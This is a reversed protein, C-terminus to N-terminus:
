RCLLLENFERSRFCWEINCGPDSIKQSLVDLIFVRVEPGAIPMFHRLVRLPEEGVFRNENVVDKEAVVGFCYNILILAM